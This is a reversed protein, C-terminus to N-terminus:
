WTKECFVRAWRRIMTLYYKVCLFRFFCGLLPGLRILITPRIGYYNPSINDDSSKKSLVFGYFLTLAVSVYPMIGDITLLALLDHKRGSSRRPLLPSAM